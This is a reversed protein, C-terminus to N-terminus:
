RSAVRLWHTSGGIIRNHRHPDLALTAYVADEEKPGATFHLGCVARDGAREVMGTFHQELQEFVTQGHCLRLVTDLLDVGTEIGRRLDLAPGLRVHCRPTPIVV